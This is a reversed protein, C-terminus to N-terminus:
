GMIMVEKLEVGLESYELWHSSHSHSFTAFGLLKLTTQFISQYALAGLKHDGLALLRM